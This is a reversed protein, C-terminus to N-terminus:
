SFSVTGSPTTKLGQALAECAVILSIEHVLAKTEKPNTTHSRLQSLKARLCPHQSVHVNHPMDSSAMTSQITSPRIPVWPHGPLSDLPFVLIPHKAIIHATRHQQVCYTTTATRPVAASRIPLYPIHSLARPPCPTWPSRLPTAFPLCLGITGSKPEVPVHVRISVTGCYERTSRLSGEPM